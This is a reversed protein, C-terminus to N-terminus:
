FLVIRAFFDQNQDNKLTVVSEDISIELVANGSALTAGQGDPGFAICTLQVLPVRTTPPTLLFLLISCSFGLAAVVLSDRSVRRHMAAFACVLLGALLTAAICVGLSYGAVAYHTGFDLAKPEDRGIQPWHGLVLRVRLYLSALM